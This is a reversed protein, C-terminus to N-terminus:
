RYCLRSIDLAPQSGCPDSRIVGPEVCCWEFWRATGHGLEPGHGRAAQEMSQPLAKRYDGGAGEESAAGRRERLNWRNGAAWAAGREWEGKVPLLSTKEGGRCGPGSVLEGVGRGM